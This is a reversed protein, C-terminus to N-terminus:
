TKKVWTKTSINNVYQTVCYISNISFKATPKPSITIFTSTIFYSLHLHNFPKTSARNLFCSQNFGFYNFHTKVVSLIGCSRSRLPWSIHSETTRELNEQKKKKRRVIYMLFWLASSSAATPAKKLPKQGQDCDLALPRKDDPSLNIWLLRHFSPERGQLSTPGNAARSRRRGRCFYLVVDAILVFWSSFVSLSYLEPCSLWRSHLSGPQVSKPGVFIQTSSFKGSSEFLYRHIHLFFCTLKFPDDFLGSRAGDNLLSLPFSPHLSHMIPISSTTDPQQATSPTTPESHGESVPTVSHGRKFLHKNYFWASLIHPCIFPNRPVGWAAPHPCSNTEWGWWRVQCTTTRPPITSWVVSMELLLQSTLLIGSILIQTECFDTIDPIEFQGLQPPLAPTFM